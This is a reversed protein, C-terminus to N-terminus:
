RRKKPGVHSISDELTAPRTEPAVDRTMAGDLVSSRGMRSLLAADEESDAVAVSRDVLAAAEAPDFGAVEGANYPVCPQTFRVRVKSTM